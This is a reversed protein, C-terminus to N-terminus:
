AEAHPWDTVHAKIYDATERLSVAVQCLEKKHLAKADKVLFYSDIIITIGAFAAGVGVFAKSVVSAEHLVTRGGYALVKGTAQLASSGARSAHTFGRGIDHGQKIRDVDPKEHNYQIGLLAAFQDLTWTLENDFFKFTLFPSEDFETRTELYRILCRGLEESQENCKEIRKKAKSAMTKSAILHTLDAGITTTGGATALVAGAITVPLSVGFTFFSLVFGVIAVGGGVISASTGSIKAILVDRKIKDIKNALTYVLQLTTVVDELWATAKEQCTQVDVDLSVEFLDIDEENSMLNVFRLSM